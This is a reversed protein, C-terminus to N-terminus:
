KMRQMVGDINSKDLATHHSLLAQTKGNINEWDNPKKGAIEM